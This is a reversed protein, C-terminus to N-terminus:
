QNLVYNYFFINNLIYKSLNKSVNLKWNSYHSEKKKKRKKKKIKLRSSHSIQWQSKQKQKRKRKKMKWKENENENTKIGLNGYTNGFWHEYVKKFNKIRYPYIYM